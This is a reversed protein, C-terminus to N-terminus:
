HALIKQFNKPPSITKSICKIKLLSLEIVCFPRQFVLTVPWVCLDRLIYLIGINIIVFQLIIKTGRNFESDINEDKTGFNEGLIELWGTNLTCGSLSSSCSKNNWRLFKCFMMLKILIICIKLFMELVGIAVKQTNHLVKVLPSTGFSVFCQQHFHGCIECFSIRSWKLTCKSSTLYVPFSKAFLLWM